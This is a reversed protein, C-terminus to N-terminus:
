LQVGQAAYTSSEAGDQSVVSVGTARWWAHMSAEMEDYFETAGCMACCGSRGIPIFFFVDHTDHTAALEVVSAKGCRRGAGHPLEAHAAFGAFRLFSGGSPQQHVQGNVRGGKCRANGHNHCTSMTAPDMTDFGANPLTAADGPACQNLATASRANLLLQYAGM